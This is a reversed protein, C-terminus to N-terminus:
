NILRYHLPGQLDNFKTVTIKEDWCRFHNRSVLSNILRQLYDTTNGHVPVPSHLSMGHTMFHPLQLALCLAQTKM